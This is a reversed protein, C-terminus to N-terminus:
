SLVPNGCDLHVEISPLEDEKITSLDLLFEDASGTVAGVLPKTFIDGDVEFTLIEVNAVDVDIRKRYSTSKLEESEYLLTGDGWIKLHFSIEKVYRDWVIHLRDVIIPMWCDIDFGITASLKHYKRELKWSVSTQRPMSVGHRYRLSNMAIPLIGYKENACHNFAPLGKDGATLGCVTMDTLYVAHDDPNRLPLPLTNETKEETLEVDVPKDSGELTLEIRKETVDWKCYVGNGRMHVFPM